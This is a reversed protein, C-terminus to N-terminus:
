AEQYMLIVGDPLNNNLKLRKGFISYPVSHTSFSTETCSYKTLPGVSDAIFRVVDRGNMAIIDVQRYDDAAWRLKMAIKEHINM